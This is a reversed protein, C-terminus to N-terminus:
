TPSLYGQLLPAMQSTFGGGIRPVMTDFEQANAGFTLAGQWFITSLITKKM